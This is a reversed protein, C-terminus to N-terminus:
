YAGASLLASFGHMEIKSCNLYHGDATKVVNKDYPLIDPYRNFAGNKLAESVCYEPKSAKITAETLRGLANWTEQHNLFLQKLTM